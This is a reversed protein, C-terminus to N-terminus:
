NAGMVAVAEGAYADLDARRLAVVGPFRKTVGQMQLYPTAM